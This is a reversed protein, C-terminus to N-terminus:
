MAPELGGFFPNVRSNIRKQYNTKTEKEKHVEKTRAEIKKSRKKWADAIMRPRYNSGLRSPFSQGSLVGSLIDSSTSSLIISAIDASIQSLVYYFFTLLNRVILIHFQSYGKQDLWLLSSARLSAAGLQVVELPQWPPLQRGAKRPQAEM